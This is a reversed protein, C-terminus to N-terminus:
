SWADELNEPHCINCGAYGTGLPSHCGSCFKISKLAHYEDDLSKILGMYLLYAESDEISSRM